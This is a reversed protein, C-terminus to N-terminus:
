PLPPAGPRNLHDAGGDFAVAECPAPQDCLAALNIYLGLVGGVIQVPLLRDDASLLVEFTRGEWNERYRDAFGAVPQIELSLRYLDRVTGRIDRQERGLVTGRVDYRRRGDFVRISFEDEGGDRLHRRTQRISEAFAALPDLVNCRLNAPVPEVALDERDWPPDAWLASDAQGTRGDFAISITGLRRTSVYAVDYRRPALHRQERPIAGQSTAQLRLKLFLELPGLSRLRFQHRYDGNVGDASFVFDAVLIGGWHVEYLARTPPWPDARADRWGLVVAALVVLGITFAM